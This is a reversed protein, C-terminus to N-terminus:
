DALDVFPLDYRRALSRAVDVAAVVGEDRLSEAFSGTGARGRASAVRDSPLLGTAAVLEAVFDAPTDFGAAAVVEADASSRLQDGLSTSTRLPGANEFKM